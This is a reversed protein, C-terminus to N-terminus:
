PRAGRPVHQLLDAAGVQDVGDAPDGGPLRQEVRGDGLPHQFADAVADFLGALQGREGVLFALDELVDGFPEGVALDSPRINRASFVTM